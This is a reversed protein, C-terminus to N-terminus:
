LNKGVTFFDIIAQQSPKDSLVLLKDNEKLITDGKPVIMNIGRLICCIIAQKPLNELDCIKRNIVRNNKTILIENLVIKEDEISLSQILNELTSAQEIIKAITYTASIATHVGLRKFVSVNKPNSVTAVVKKVHFLKHAYQCITLNDADSPRLAILIDADEINAEELIYKKCPNGTIVPIDYKESLYSCYQEEDNIVIVHHNKELLSGILFDAKNRGGVVVINM